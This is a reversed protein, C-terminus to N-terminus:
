NNNAERTEDEIQRLITEYDRKYTKDFDIWDEHNKMSNYITSRDLNLTKAIQGHLMSTTKFLIASYIARGIVFEQKRIKINIDIGFYSNITDKVNQVHDNQKETKPKDFKALIASHETKLKKYRIELNEFEKKLEKYMSEYDYIKAKITTYLSIYQGRYVSDMKFLEDHRRIANNYTVKNQKLTDAISKKNMMVFESVLSYYQTRANVKEKKNVKEHIDLLHLQNVEKKITDIIGRNIERM